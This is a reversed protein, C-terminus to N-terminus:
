VLALASTGRQFKFFINVIAVRLQTPLLPLYRYARNAQERPHHAVRLLKPM